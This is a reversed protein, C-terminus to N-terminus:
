EPRILEVGDLFVRSRRRADALLRAAEAPDLVGFEADWEALAARLAYRRVKVEAADALWNSITVGEAAAAARVGTVLDAELSISLKEAGM